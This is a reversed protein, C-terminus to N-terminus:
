NYIYSTSRYGALKIIEYLVDYGVISELERAYRYYIDMYPVTKDNYYTLPKHRGSFHVFVPEYTIEDYDFTKLLTNYKLDISLSKTFTLNAITQDNFLDYKKPILRSRNKINKFFIETMRDKRLIELDMLILGSNFYLNDIENFGIKTAVSDARRFVMTDRVWGIYNGRLDEAYLMEINGTCMMDIDLYLARNEKILTPALYRYYGQRPVARNRISINKLLPLSNDIAVFSMNANHADTLKRIANKSKEGLGSNIIYFCCNLGPNNTMISHIAVLMYSVGDDDTSFIINHM